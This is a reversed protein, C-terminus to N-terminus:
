ETTIDIFKDMGQWLADNTEKLQSITNSQNAKPNNLSV